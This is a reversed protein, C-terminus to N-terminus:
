FEGSQMMNALEIARIGVQTSWKSRLMERSAEEFDGKDILAITKKFGSFRKLGLNYMMNEIVAQRAENLGKYWDFKNCDEYVSKMAEDFMCDAVNQSIGQDINTGWGVTLIGETDKYPKTRFGEHRQIIDKSNM